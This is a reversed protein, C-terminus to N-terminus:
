GHGFPGSTVAFSSTLGYGEESLRWVTWEADDDSDVPDMDLLSRFLAHDSGAFVAQFHQDNFVRYQGIGDPREPFPHWNGDVNIIGKLNMYIAEVHALDYPCQEYTAEEQAEDDIM